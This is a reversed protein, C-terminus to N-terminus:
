RLPVFDFTALASADDDDVATEPEVAVVLASGETTVTPPLIDTSRDNQCCESMCTPVVIRTVAVPSALLAEAAAAAADFDDPVLLAPM